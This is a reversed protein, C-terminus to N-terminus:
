ISPSFKQLAEYVKQTPLGVITNYTGEIKIIKALGIWEQIAYAGAKDYPQFTRVYYDMEEESLPAFHVRATDSFSIQKDGGLLCVGTIVEHQRGSLARLIRLADEYDKPKHFITDDQLVITDSALIVTGPQLQERVSAAKQEALYIPVESNPLDDPFSEEINQEVVQFSCGLAKLLQSRRPSKSALLVTPLKISM